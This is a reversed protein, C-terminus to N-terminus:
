SQEEFFNHIARAQRGMDNLGYRQDCVLSLEQGYIAMANESIGNHYKSLPWHVPCYIERATLYERLRDRLGESVLIPVFLPTEQQKREPFIIRLGNCGSLQNVLFDANLRRKQKIANLDLNWFDQVTRLAPVYDRYDEELSAEAKDFLELYSKKEDNEEFIYRKKKTQSVGRMEEYQGNEKYTQRISFKGSMKKAYAIGTMGTWKRISAFQYCKEGISYDRELSLWSHTCDEIICDWNKYVFDSEVGELYLYGFYSMKYFIEKDRAQPIHARLGEQYFVDYFRVSIGNKLFPEIMTHCCFSPLLASKIGHEAIADRVIFDLATRGSLFLRKDSKLSDSEWFEGGIEGRM